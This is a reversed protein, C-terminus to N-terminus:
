WSPLVATKLVQRRETYDPLVRAVHAWFRAGHNMELLHALEHVVVYDIVPPDFHILRWNLRISADRSASGWRTRASTLRMRQWHVGLRPAFHDLRATFLRRARGMLWLQTARQIQAAPANPPLALELVQSGADDHHLAPQPRKGNRAGALRVVLTKGLYPLEAGDRWVIREAQQRVAREGAQALKALIWREKEHLAAEIAPIATRQPAHVTLGDAAITFGISRRASRKLAYTVAQRGFWVIRSPHALGDDPVGRRPPHQAAPTPTSARITGQRSM